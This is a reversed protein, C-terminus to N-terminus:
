LRGDQDDDYGHRHSHYSLAMLGGGLAVSIVIGLGLAILGPGSILSMPMDALVSLAFYGAAALIALLAAILVATKM